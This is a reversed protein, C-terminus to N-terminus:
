NLKHINWTQGSGQALVLVFWCVESFCGRVTYHYALYIILQFGEFSKFMAFLICANEPPPPPKNRPGKCIGKKISWALGITFKTSFFCWNRYNIMYILYILDFVQTHKSMIRILNFTFPSSLWNKDGSVSTM